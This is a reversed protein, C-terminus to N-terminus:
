ANQRKNRMIKGNKDDNRDNEVEEMEDPFPDDLCEVEKLEDYKENKNNNRDYVGEEM